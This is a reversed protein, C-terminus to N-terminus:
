ENRFSPFLKVVYSAASIVAVTVQRLDKSYVLYITDDLGVQFYEKLRLHLLGSM